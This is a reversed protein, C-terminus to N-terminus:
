LNYKISIKSHAIPIPTDSCLESIKNENQHNNDLNYNINHAVHVENNNTFSPRKM